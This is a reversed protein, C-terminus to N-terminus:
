NEHKTETFIMCSYQRHKEMGEMRGGTRGLDTGSGRLKEDERKVIM